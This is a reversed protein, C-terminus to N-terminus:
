SILEIKIFVGCNFRKSRRGVYTKRSNERAINRFYKRVKCSNWYEEMSNGFLVSYRSLIGEKVCFM